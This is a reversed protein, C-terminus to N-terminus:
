PREGTTHSPAASGIAQEIDRKLAQADVHYEGAAEDVTMFPAIPCAPCNMKYDLFIRVAAPWRRLLEGVTLDSLDEAFVKTM